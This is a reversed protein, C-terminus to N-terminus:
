EEVITVDFGHLHFDGLGGSDIQLNVGDKYVLIQTGFHDTIHQELGEVCSVFLDMGYSNCGPYEADTISYSAEGASFLEEVTSPINWYNNM